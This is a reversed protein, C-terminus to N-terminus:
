SGAEDQRAWAALVASGAARDDPYMRILRGDADYAAWGMGETKITGALTLGCYIDVSVEDPKLSLTGGRRKM